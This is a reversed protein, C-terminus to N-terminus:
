ILSISNKDFDYGMTPGSYANDVAKDKLTISYGSSSSGTVSYLRENILPKVDTIDEGPLGIMIHAVVDIGYKKLIAVVREFDETTYGRNILRGIEDNATQLGLEVCVYYKDTYGKLM